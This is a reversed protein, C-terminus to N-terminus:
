SMGNQCAFENYRTWSNAPKVSSTLTTLTHQTTYFILSLTKELANDRLYRLAAELYIVLLVPSLSDVQPTGITSTFIPCKGWKLRPELTTETLRMRIIRLESEGLFSGLVTIQKDRRITDFARSIDIGLVHM